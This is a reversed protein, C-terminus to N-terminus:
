LWPMKGLSAIEIDENCRIQSYAILLCQTQLDCRDWSTKVGEPRIGFRECARWIAYDGTRGEPLRM